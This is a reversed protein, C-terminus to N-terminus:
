TEDDGDKKKKDKISKNFDKITKISQKYRHIMKQLKSDENIVSATIMILLETRTLKFENFGLAAALIPVKSILPLSENTSRNEEQIIGGVLLTSGDRMSLSTIVQRTIFSPYFQGGAQVDDGLASVTQDLEITILGGKTVQPTIKMIIGTKKYEVENSTALASSGSNSDAITRTITPIEQGVDLSAETGSVAALQPSALIKFNGTGALGRIYAYKDQGSSILYNFGKSTTSNDSPVSPTLGAFDVGFVGHQNGNNTTGSFEVGFETNDNLRVEAIMVQLLVQAPVTDLRAMLAKIMAYTRPTTRVILRNNKGDAFVKVPMEFLNAPGADSGPQSSSKVATTSTRTRSRSSSTQSTSSDTSSSSSTSGSYNMSVGEINFISAMAQILEDAKSNIVKYIFVQEQEGVDSRDLVNVWKVIEDLAEKNAASAIIAQMREVSTLHISGPEAVVNDVTVPFGLVPLISALEAVIRSASVNSCRIVVRPWLTRHKSDLMKILIELKEMNEPAEVIMIANEGTLETAKAGETLFDTIKGLVTSAALNKIDFIRVEVNSATGKKAFISRERPMKQFPMIHLIDGEPSVYAGGLWLIQEFLGWADRQSMMLEADTEPNQVKLTIAGKVAPDIAYSFGLYKAFMPIIAQLPAADLNFHIPVKTDKGKIYKEYFPPLDKQKEKARVSALKDFGDIESKVVPPKETVKVTEEPISEKVVKRPPLKDTFFEDGDTEDDDDDGLMEKLTECSVLMGAIALLFLVKLLNTIYKKM